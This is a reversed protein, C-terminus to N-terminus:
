ERDSAMRILSNSASGQAYSLRRLARESLTQGEKLVGEDTAHEAIASYREFAADLLKLAQSVSDVEVRLKAAPPPSGLRAQAEEALALEDAAVREFVRATTRDGGGALAVAFRAHAEAAAREGRAVEALLEVLSGPEALPHPKDRRWAKRRERRLLAAHELEDKASQEALERVRTDEAHAALYSYFAFAREENRVAIALARYPTLLRSRAEEEDFYEPLEWKVSSPDIATGLLAKARDAIEQAHKDEIRALFEFLKALEQHEQGYMYRSLERYRRSAELEMAHAIALLQDPATVWVPPESKLGTPVEKQTKMHSYEATRHAYEASQVSDSADAAPRRKAVSRRGSLRPTLHKTIMHVSGAVSASEISEFNLFTPCWVRHALPAGPTFTNREPEGDPFRDKVEGISKM